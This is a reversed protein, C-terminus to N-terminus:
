IVEATELNRIKEWDNGKLLQNTAEEFIPYKGANKCLFDLLAKVFYMGEARDNLYRIDTFRIEQHQIISLFAEPSTYHYIIDEKEKGGIVSFGQNTPMIRKILFSNFEYKEMGIM